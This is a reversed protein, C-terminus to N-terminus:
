NIRQQNEDLRKQSRPSRKHSPKSLMDGESPSSPFEHGIMQPRDDILSESQHTRLLSPLGYQIEALGRTHNFLADKAVPQTLAFVSNRFDTSFRNSGFEKKIVHLHQMQRVQTDNISDQGIKQHRTNKLHKNSEQNVVKIQGTIEMLDRVEKSTTDMDMYGGVPWQKVLENKHLNHGLSM